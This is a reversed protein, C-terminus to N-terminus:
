CIIVVELRNAFEEEYPIIRSDADTRYFWSCRRVHSEPEDWYVARRVRKIIDVDYRGGNVSVIHTGSTYGHEQINDAIFCYCESYQTQKQIIKNHREM